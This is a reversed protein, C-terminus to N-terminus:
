VIEFVVNPLALPNILGKSHELPLPPHCHQRRQDMGTYVLIGVISEEALSIDDQEDESCVNFGVSYIYSEINDECNTSAHRYSPTVGYVISLSLVASGRYKYWCGALSDSSMAM